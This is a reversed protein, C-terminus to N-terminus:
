LFCIINSCSLCTIERMLMVLKGRLLLADGAKIDNKRGNSGYGTSGSRRGGGIGSGDKSGVPISMMQLGVTFVAKIQERTFLGTDDISPDDINAEAINALQTIFQSDYTSSATIISWMSFLTPLYEKPHIASEGGPLRENTISHRPITSPLFLVLYGQTKAVDKMSDVSFMPLFTDLVEKTASPPFFRQAHDALRVVANIHKRCFHCTDISFSVDDYSVLIMSQIIFM